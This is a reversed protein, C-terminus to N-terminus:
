GEATNVKDFMCGPLSVSGCVLGPNINPRNQKLNIWEMLTGCSPLSFNSLVLKQRDCSSFNSIWYLLSCHQIYLTLLHAGEM